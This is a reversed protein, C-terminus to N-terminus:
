KVAESLKGCVFEIEANEMFPFMPLSLIEKVANEAVPQSGAKYGLSAFAPQLHIVNPYHLGTSIGNSNLFDKVKDRNKVRVVFLHYNSKAFAKEVPLVIKKSGSLIKKYLEASKRRSQNWEALYKLKVGLVAGQMGAMRYNYGVVFHVNKPKEGHARLLLIKEIIAPDDSTVAGAEGFAGLNKGPYFSFCCTNGHSGIRKGNYESGHAQAADEILPIGHKEAIEKVARLDFPQGYLHVPLIAKTKKSIKKEVLSADINLTDKEVDVFVPKAGCHAIAESTAFFSNPVTIVEDGHKIGHALLALHLAATGSDVGAAFKAGCFQAFSDEFKKVADGLVFSNTDIIQKIASDIEVRIKDHQRKLDVFPVQM